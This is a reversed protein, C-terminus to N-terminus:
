YNLVLGLHFIDANFDNSSFYREYKAEFTSNAMFALLGDELLDQLKYELRIGFTHANFSQLKYDSTMYSRSASYIPQYFNAASQNYYRYKYRILVKDSMHQYYAASLTHSRIDWDDRYYRYEMNLSTRTQFYRNLKVFVAGRNRWLPHNEQLVLGGAHVTRYPNSQFGSVNSFDAGVRGILVPSLAQTLTVNLGHTEKTHSTDASLPRVDDWGYSYSAALNTNKQNFDFNVSATAMRAIYDSEDSYYFSLGANPLLLATIIENRDKTFSEDAPKDGSIPRSAGTIADTDSPSPRASIGLIPPVVVQNLSYQLVMRLDMWLNRSLELSPIRITTGKNDSFLNTRMSVKGDAFVLSTFSLLLMCATTKAITKKMVRGDIRNSIEIGTNSM